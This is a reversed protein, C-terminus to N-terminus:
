YFILVVIHGGINPPIGYGMNFNELSYSIYGDKNYNIFSIKQNKNESDTNTLEGISSIENKYKKSLFLNVQNKTGMDPICLIMNAYVGRNFSESGIM